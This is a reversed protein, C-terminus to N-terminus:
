QRCLVFWNDQVKGNRIARGVSVHSSVGRLADIMGAYVFRSLREDNSLIEPWSSAKGNPLRTYDILVEDGPGEYAVFYGPGVVTQVLTGSRNYGWLERADSKPRCFVKAFRTFLALSNKGEHVVEALPGREPPVLQDLKLKRAGKAAEYLKAQAAGSLSRVAGLRAQADLADLTRGLEAVDFNGLRLQADLELDLKAVGLNQVM